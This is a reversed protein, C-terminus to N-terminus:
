GGFLLTGFGPYNHFNGGTRPSWAWLTQGEDYDIRYLNGRWRAGPQPPTNGMGRFLAFPIFFEASWGKVAALSAKPGGRVATASRIKREGEYHWPRWGMYVMRYNSVLIPLEVGLPSIEYEFYLVHSEDPWLFVEVVDEKYIDDFDQTMTCTLKRDECDFLFYLGTASYLVKARSEYRSPGAGIRTLPLWDTENWAPGDGTGSVAFDAVKHVQTEM